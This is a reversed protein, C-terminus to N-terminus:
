VPVDVPVRRLDRLTFLSQEELYRLQRAGERRKPGFRHRHQSFVENVWGRSGIVAGDTFYRVRCRVYESWRLQGKQQLVERVKEPAIGGRITPGSQGPIGEVMGEGYVWMRYTSLAETMTGAGQMLTAIGERAMRKGAVAAAYGSWRYDKPDEVLRARIPNLDIYAAVKALAERSGEVMLSKFREEWLTGKRESRRNYWQSFRQKVLKMYASMDWKQACQSQQWLARREEPWGALEQRLRDTASDGHLQEYQQLLEELTPLVAPPTPVELLIHFHNSMVCYTLVRVGCYRAYAEMWYVFQEKEGAGFVHRRDVVRSLCHYYGRNGMVRLRAQRM